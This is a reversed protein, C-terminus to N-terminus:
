EHQSQKPIGSKWWSAGHWKRLKELSGPVQGAVVLDSPEFGSARMMARVPERAADLEERSARRALVAQPRLALAEWLHSGVEPVRWSGDKRRVALGLSTGEEHSPLIEPAASQEMIERVQEGTHREFAALDSPRGRRGMHAAALARYFEPPYQLDPEDDEVRKGALTNEAIREESEFHRRYAWRLGDTGVPAGRAWGILVARFLKRKYTEDLKALEVAAVIEATGRRYKAVQGRGGSRNGVTEIV